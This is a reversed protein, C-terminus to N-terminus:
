RPLVDFLRCVQTDKQAGSDDFGQVVCQVAVTQQVVGDIFRFEGGLRALFGVAGQTDFPTGEQCVCPLKPQDFGTGILIASKGVKADLKELDTAAAATSGTGVAASALLIFISTLVL